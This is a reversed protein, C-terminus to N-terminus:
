SYKTGFASNTKKIKESLLDYLYKEHREPIKVNATANIKKSVLLKDILRPSSDVDLFRCVRSLLEKPRDSLEQEFVIVAVQEDGLASRWLAVHDAFDACKLQYDSSCVKKFKDFGVHELVEKSGINLIRKVDSWARKVPHRIGVVVRIDPSLLAVERVLDEHMAAYTATADGKIMSTERSQGFQVLNRVRRAMKQHLKVSFQSAYWELRASTFNVSGPQTLKNFFYLEKRKPIFIQPHLRLNYALWSTGTRQPGAVFFDPFEYSGPKLDVSEVFRLADIDSETLHISGM